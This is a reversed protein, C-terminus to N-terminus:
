TLQRRGLKPPYKFPMTDACDDIQTPRHPFAPQQSQLNMQTGLLTHLQDMEPQIGSTHRSRLRHPRRVLQQLRNLTRQQNM